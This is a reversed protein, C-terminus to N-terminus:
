NTTQDTEYIRNVIYFVTSDLPYPTHLNEADAHQHMFRLESLTEEIESDSLNVKVTDGVKITQRITEGKIVTITDKYKISSVDYVTIKQKSCSAIALSAFALLFMKKMKILKFQKTRDHAVIRWPM